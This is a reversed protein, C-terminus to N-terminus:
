SVMGDKYDAVVLCGDSRMALGNPEGGWQALESWETSDLDLRLIRGGPIDVIFLNGHTDTCPGEIFIALIGGTGLGIDAEIPTCRTLALSM